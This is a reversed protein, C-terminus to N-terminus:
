KLAPCLPISPANIQLTQWNGIRGGPSTELQQLHHRQASSPLSAGLGPPLLGLVGRGTLPRANGLFAGSEKWKM